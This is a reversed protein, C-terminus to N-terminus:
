TCYISSGPAAVCTHLDGWFNLAFLSVGTAGAYWDPPPTSIIPLFLTDLRSLGWLTARDWFTYNLAAPTARSRHSPSSTTQRDTKCLCYFLSLSFQDFNSLEPSRRKMSAFPFGGWKGFRWLSECCQHSPHSVANTARCATLDNYLSFKLCQYIITVHDYM